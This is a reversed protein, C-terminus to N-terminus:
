NAAGGKARADALMSRVNAANPYAPNRQLLTEWARVAGAYDHKGDSKVIGINFLTQAHSPDIRLSVDYQALADDANGTYWLATGLDTSVNVDTARAALAQRYLPIADLYRKADYLMNAADIAAQANSPDKALITRYSQLVAENVVAAQPAAPAPAVATAVVHSRPTTASSLVYGALGGVLLMGVAYVMWAYRQPPEEDYSRERVDARRSTKRHSM